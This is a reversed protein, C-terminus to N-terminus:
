RAGGKTEASYAPTMAFHCTLCTLERAPRSLTSQGVGALHHGPELAVHCHRMCVGVGCHHCVGVADVVEEAWACDFCKM